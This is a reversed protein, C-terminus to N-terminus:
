MLAYFAKTVSYEVPDQAGVDIYFGFEIDKLARHLIVDEYNQAYSVISM